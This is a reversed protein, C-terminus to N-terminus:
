IGQPTPCPHGASRCNSSKLLQCPVRSLRPPLRGLRGYGSYGEPPATAGVQELLARRPRMSPGGRLCLRLLGQLLVHTLDEQEFLPTHMETCSGSPSPPQAAAQGCGPGEAPWGSCCHEAFPATPRNRRRCRGAGDALAIASRQRGAAVAACRSSNCAASVLGLVPITSYLLPPPLPLLLLLPPLLLGRSGV